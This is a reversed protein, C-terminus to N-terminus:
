LGLLVPKERARACVCVCVCVCCVCVFVCVDKWLRQTGDLTDQVLQRGLLKLAQQLLQQLDDGSGVHQAVGDGQHKLIRHLLGCVAGHICTPAAIHLFPCSCAPPPLQM